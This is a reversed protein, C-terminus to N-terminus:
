GGYGFDDDHRGDDGVAVVTQAQAAARLVLVLATEPFEGTALHLGALPEIMSQGPLQVFLQPQLRYTGTGKEGHPVAVRIQRHGQMEAFYGSVLTLGVTAFALRHLPHGAILKGSTGERFGVPRHRHRQLQRRLPHNGWLVQIFGVNDLPQRAQVRNPLAHVQATPAAVRRHRRGAAGSPQPEPNPVIPLQSAFLTSEPEVEAAFPQRPGLTLACRLEIPNQGHSAVIGPLDFRGPRQARIHRGQRRHAGRGGM